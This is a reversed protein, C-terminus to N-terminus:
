RESGYLVLASWAGLRRGNSKLVDRQLNLLAAEATIGSSMQRHLGVMLERSAAEAAGPLTGIIAPVGATMFARSLTMTGEGRNRGDSEVEDLVVVGTNPMAQQAIDRGLMAGSHQRGADDALMLRSLLPHTVNAATEASIHVVRRNGVSAIFGERTAEAGTVLVPASYLSAVMRASATAADGPGALVLPGSNDGNAARAAPTTSAYLSASPAMSISFDEVLFRQRSRDWFAAFSAVDYPADAVVVLKSIGRLEGAVPRLIQNFLDASAGPNAAEHQIEDRQRAVLRAADLRTIPRQVVTTGDHTVVWVSLENKFQSLTLVAEGPALSRQVQDLTQTQASRKAEALTKARASEALAFARPYDRAKLSLQVAVDFLEWSEDLTSIRGEDNLSSREENFARLGDDLAAQAQPIRGWAVNARALRLNLQALRLRDRRQQVIAIAKTAAAVAAEPDRVVLLDAEATLVAVDVRNRFQPDAIAPIRRRAEAVDRAADASRGLSILTSARQALVEAVAAERKWVLANAVAAAQLALATEPHEQFIASASSAIVAHKLRPSRSSALGGFAALRHRWATTSDGLYHHLTALLNHAAAAQEVDGMREFAALTQEYDAQADALRGQVFAILGRVWTSRARHYAYGSADAKTLVDKLIDLATPARGNVYAITALDLAARDAFPSGATTLSARAATLRPAADSFRDESYLEAAAAYARHASALAAVAEPGRTGAREIAGVVDRYLFDGAVRALADAMSQIRSLEAAGSEGREVAAAWDALLVTDIFTRAETTQTRVALDALDPDITGGLRSELALWADAGTPKSLETLRTRAEGAWSSNADRELYDAWARKADATMSLASLALARNFWAESLSPDLRRARDASALARPLDDPRLGLRARELQVAAVDNLYRANSPQERAAALLAMAADDLRGALLQSLGLDHLRAPTEREGFSERIKAAALLIRDTDAARGVQGGATPLVLPAHPIGGTLRGLVSRQESVGDLNALGMDGDLLPRVLSPTVLIVLVAAAAALVGVLTRRTAARSALEVAPEAHPTSELVDAVTRVVGALLAICQPCSALHHDVRAREALSLGRDVYAALAEPEPCRTNSDSM